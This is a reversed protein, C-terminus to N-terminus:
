RIQTSICYEKYERVFEDSVHSIDGAGLFLVLDGPKVMRLVHAVIQDKKFYLM